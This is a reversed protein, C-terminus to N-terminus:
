NTKQPEAEEFAERGLKRMGSYLDSDGGMKIGSSM